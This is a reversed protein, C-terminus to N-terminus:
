LYSLPDATSGGVRVEFHVHNGTCSGTCGVTAITEGQSVAQGASVAVSANHAYATALGGAHAIVVILGYGGMWGAYAVTGSAAAVVPTGGPAAIDIGAHLRGWRMGYPSTIVGRVPWVLGGSSPAGGEGGVSASSRAQQALLAEIRGSEAELADAEAEWQARDVRISALAREREDRLALLRDREAVLSAYVSRRDATRSALARTAEAQRRELARTEERARAVEVRSRSVDGALEADQDVTRRYLDLQEIAGDLSDAGLLISVLDPERSTYIEVLRQGLRDEAVVLQRRLLALQATQEKLKGRLDLLRGRARDLASELAALERELHTVRHQASDIEDSQSAIEAGLREERSRAAAIREEVADLREEVAHRRDSLSEGSAVGAVAILLAASGAALAAGRLLKRM